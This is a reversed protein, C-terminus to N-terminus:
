DYKYAGKSLSSSALFKIFYKFVLNKLTITEAIFIECDECGVEKLVDYDTGSGTLTSVDLEAMVANLIGESKDIIIVDHGENGLDQAIHRGVKGAGVIVIKM